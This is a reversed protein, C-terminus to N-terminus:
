ASLAPDIRIHHPPIKAVDVCGEALRTYILQFWESEVKLHLGNSAVVKASRLPGSIEHVSRYRRGSPELQIVGLLDLTGGGALESEM